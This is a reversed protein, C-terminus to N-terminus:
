RVLRQTRDRQRSAPVRAPPRILKYQWTHRGMHSMNKFLKSAIRKAFSPRCEAATPCPLGCRKMSCTKIHGFDDRRRLRSSVLLALGSVLAFGLLWGAQDGLASNLLRFPGTSGGFMASGGLAAPGGSQGAIRGLGNYGFNLSWISNDATGSIWPRDAAPTLTVLIPWALGVVLM